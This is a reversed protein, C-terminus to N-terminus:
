FGPLKAKGAVLMAAYSLGASDRLTSHTDQQLGSHQWDSWSLGEVAGCGGDDFSANASYYSNFDITVHDTSDGTQYSACAGYFLGLHSIVTNNTYSNNTGKCQDAFPVERGDPGNPYCMFNGSAHKSLGERFKIGGYVLFNDTDNYMSSGDDHDICYLNKSPGLFSTRVIFNNHITSQQPVMRLSNPDASDQLWVWPKRDWSNFNSISDAVFPAPVM